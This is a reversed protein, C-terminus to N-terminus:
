QQGARYQALAVVLAQPTPEAAVVVAPLGAAGLAAATTPGLAAIPVDRAASRSSEDLHGAFAQAASPSAFTLADFERALLAKRLANVDVAAAVTRYLVIEDVTAGGARLREPIVDRAREARLFLYRRGRVGLDREIEAALADADARADPLSVDSWGFERALRATAPGVCFVPRGLTDPALGRARLAAVWRSVSNRSTFILADYEAAGRVAATVGADAGPADEIATMPISVPAAGARRLAGVLEDRPDAPRTVLVRCGFLPARDIGGLEARLRVVDGVVVIAPAGLGARRV